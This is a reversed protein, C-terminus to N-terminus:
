KNALVEEREALAEKVAPVEGLTTAVGNYLTPIQSDPNVGRDTLITWSAYLPEDNIIDGPSLAPNIMKSAQKGNELSDVSDENSSTHVITLHETVLSKNETQCVIQSVYFSGSLSTDQLPDMKEVGKSVNLNNRTIFPPQEVGDREEAKATHIIKCSVSNKVDKITEDDDSFEIANDFVHSLSMTAQGLTASSLFSDSIFKKDDDSFCGDAVLNLSAELTTASDEGLKNITDVLNAQSTTTTGMSNTEAMPEDTQKRAFEVFANRKEGDTKALKLDTLLEQDGEFKTCSSASTEPSPESSPSESEQSTATTTDPTPESHTEGCASLPAVAALLTAMAAISKLVKEKLSTSLKVESDSLNFQEHNRVMVSPIRERINDSIKNYFSRPSELGIPLIIVYITCFHLLFPINKMFFCGVLTFIDTAREVPNSGAIEETVPLRSLGVESRACIM